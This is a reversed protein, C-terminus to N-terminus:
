MAPWTANLRASKAEHAPCQLDVLGGLDGDGELGREANMGPVAQTAKRGHEVNAALPPDTGFRGRGVLDLLLDGATRGARELTVAWPLGTGASAKGVLDVM